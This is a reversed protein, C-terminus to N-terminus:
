SRMKASHVPQFLGSLDLETGTPIDVYYEGLSRSISLSLRSQLTAWLQCLDERHRLYASNM